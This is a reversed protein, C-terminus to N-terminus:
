RVYAQELHKQRKRVIADKLRRLAHAEQYSRIAYNKFRHFQHFDGYLLQADRMVQYKFFPDAQHLSKLDLEKERSCGLTEELCAHLKLERKLDLPESGLYAVDLDSGKRPKGQAYSGYVVLLKLNFKKGIKKIKRKQKSTLQM